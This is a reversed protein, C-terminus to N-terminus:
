PFLRRATARLAARVRPVRRSWADARALARVALAGQLRRHEAAEASLAAAAAPTPAVARYQELDALVRAEGGLAAIRPVQEALAEGYARQVAADRLLVAITEGDHRLEAMREALQRQLAERDAELDVLRTRDAHLNAQAAQLAERAQEERRALAERDACAEDLAQRVDAARREAQALQAALRHREEEAGEQRSRAEAEVNAAYDELNRYSAEVARAHRQLADRLGIAAETAPGPAAVVFFQYVRALPDASLAALVEPAVDAASVPLETEELGREVTLADLVRLGATDLMADLGQRDFFQLHTRDLVGVDTRPFRGGLLSVRVAAHAVNPVSMLLRGGPALWEHVRALLRGPDPLHEIVDLLLVIDFAARPLADDALDNLDADVTRLGHALLAAVGEADREVATVSAGRAALVRAVSGDGAGLDLVRSGPPVSLVAFTHVNNLDNLDVERSYRTVSM